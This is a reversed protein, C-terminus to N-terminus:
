HTHTDTITQSQLHSLQVSNQCLSLPPSDVVHGSQWSVKCHELVHRCTSSICHLPSLALSLSLSFSLALSLSLSLFGPLSSSLSLSLSLPLLPPSMGLQSSPFHLSAGSHCVTQQFAKFTSLNLM